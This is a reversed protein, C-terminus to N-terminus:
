RDHRVACVAVGEPQADLDTKFGFLDTCGLRRAAQFIADRLSSSRGFFGRSRATILAVLRFDSPVREDEHITVRTTAEGTSGVVVATTASANACGAGLL